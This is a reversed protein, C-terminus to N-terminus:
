KLLNRLVALHEYRSRLELNVRRLMPMKSELSLVPLLKHRRAYNVTRIAEALRQTSQAITIIARMLATTNGADASKLLAHKEREFLSDALRLVSGSVRELAQCYLGLAEDFRVVPLTHLTTGELYVKTFLRSFDEIWSSLEHYEERKQESVGYQSVEQKETPEDDYIPNERISAAVQEDPIRKFVTKQAPEPTAAQPSSQQTVPPPLPPNQTKTQTQM